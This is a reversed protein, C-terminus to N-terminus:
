IASRRTFRYHEAPRHGVETEREGTAELLGSALMRRRFSDKNLTRGLITEHVDQLRRLTFTEPLLQFGIPTYDLKGRIRKVAMGLIEAHDFALALRGRGGARVEVPGGTEGEWPVLIRASVLEHREDPVLRAADVLAYYAVSIVRTRPDRDIAGFTFLQELYVGALGAKERLVREAARDLSEDMHVFGGPLAWRGKHPHETREVLAVQLAGDVVTLIAVDVAVSPREFPTPDYAALFQEEDAQRRTREGTAVNLEKSTPLM